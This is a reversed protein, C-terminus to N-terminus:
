RGTRGERAPRVEVRFTYRYIRKEGAQDVRSILVEHEGASLPLRPSVTWSIRGLTDPPGVADARALVQGRADALEAAYRADASVPVFFVLTLARGGLPSALVPLQADGREPGNGLDLVLPEVSRDPPGAGRRLFPWLGAAVLVLVAAAALWATRGALPARAPRREPSAAAVAATSAPAPIAQDSHAEIARALPLLTELDARCAACTELHSRVFGAEDGKLSGNVYFPLLRRAPGCGVSAPFWRARRM